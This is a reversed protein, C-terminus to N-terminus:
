KSRRGKGSKSGCRKKIIHKLEKIEPEGWTYAELIECQESSFGPYHEAWWDRRGYNPSKILLFDTADIEM